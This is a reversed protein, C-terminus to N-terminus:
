PGQRWDIGEADLKTKCEQYKATFWDKNKGTGVCVDEGDEPLSEYEFLCYDMAYHRELAERTEPKLDACTEHKNALNHGDELKGMVSLFREERRLTRISETTAGISSELRQVGEDWQAQCLVNDVGFTDDAKHILFPYLKSFHIMTFPWGKKEMHEVFENINRDGIVKHATIQDGGNSKTSTVYRFASIFRQCPHRITTATVYNAIGREESNTMMLDIPHHGAVPARFGLHFLQNDSYFIESNEVTSGGTKPIHVYVLKNDRSTCGIDDKVIEREEESLDESLLMRSLRSADFSPANILAVLGLSLVLLRLKTKAKQSLAQKKTPTYFLMQISIGSQSVTTKILVVLTIEASKPCRSYLIVSEHKESIGAQRRYV